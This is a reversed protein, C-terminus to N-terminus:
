SNLLDVLKMRVAQIAPFIGAILGAVIMILLATIMISFDVTPNEFFSLGGVAKLIYDMGQTLAIGLMMGIYGFILTIIVSEVLVLRVISVDSAGMAIRVGFERTREKIGIIMMNSVGVIGSILTALGVIWIFLQIMGLVSDLQFFLDTSSNCTVAIKDDPSFDLREALVSYIKDKFEKLQRDNRVDNAVVVIQSLTGDTAFLDKGTSFPVYVTHGSGYGYPSDYIGVVKFCIGNVLIDKGLPTGDKGFLIDVSQQGLLCVRSHRQMDIDTFDRGQTIKFYDFQYYGIQCGIIVSKIKRPGSVIEVPPSQNNMRIYRVEDAFANSIAEADEIHLVIDRHSSYGHWAQATRAPTLHLTCLTDPGFSATVGRVVGNGSGLMVILIFLGWGISFGTLLLRLKNSRM